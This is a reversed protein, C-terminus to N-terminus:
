DVNDLKLQELECHILVMMWCRGVCVTFFFGGGVWVWIIKVWSLGYNQNSFYAPDAKAAFGILSWIAPLHGSALITKLMTFKLFVTAPSSLLLMPRLTQISGCALSGNFPSVSCAHPHFESAVLFHAMFCPVHRNGVEVTKSM